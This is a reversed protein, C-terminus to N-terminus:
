EVEEEDKQKQVCHELASIILQLETHVYVQSRVGHLAKAYSREDHKIQSHEIHEAVKQFIAGAEPHQAAISISDICAEGKFRFQKQENTFCETLLGFIFSSPWDAATVSKMGYILTKAGKASGHAAASIRRGLNEQAHDSLKACSNAGYGQLAEAAPNQQYWDHVALDADIREVIQSLDAKADSLTEFSASMIAMNLKHKEPAEILGMRDLTLALTMGSTTVPPRAPEILHAFVRTKDLPTLQQFPVPDGLLTSTAKPFDRLHKEFQWEPQTLQTPPDKLLRRCFVVSRRAFRQMTADDVIPELATLTEKLLFPLVSPELKDRLSDAFEEIRAPDSDLYHVDKFIHELLDKVYSHRLLAPRSLVIEVTDSIAADIDQTTPSIGKPHAYTNRMDRIHNLKKYEDANIINLKKASDLILIDTVKGQSEQSDISTNEIGAQGDRKALERIRERLAEACCLWTMIYAARMSGAVVCSAVEDYLVFDSEYLIKVRLQNFDIAVQLQESSALAVDTALEISVQRTSRKWYFLPEDRLLRM